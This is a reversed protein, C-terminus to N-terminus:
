RTTSSRHAVLPHVKAEIFHSWWKHVVEGRLTSPKIRTHGPATHGPTTSPTNSAVDTAPLSPPASGTGATTEQEVVLQNIADLMPNHTVSFALLMALCLLMFEILL